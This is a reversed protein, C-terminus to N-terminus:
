QASSGSTARRCIAPPGSSYPINSPAMPAEATPPANRNRQSLAFSPASRRTALAVSAVAAAVPNNAAARPGSAATAALRMAPADHIAATDLRLTDACTASGSQTRARPSATYTVTINPASVMPLAIQPSSADMPPNGAARQSAAAPAIIAIGSVQRQFSCVPAFTSKEGDICHGSGTVVWAISGSLPGTRTVTSYWM